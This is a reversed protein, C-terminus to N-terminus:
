VHTLPQSPNCWEDDSPEEIEHDAISMIRRGGDRPELYVSSTVTM